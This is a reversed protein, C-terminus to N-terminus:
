WLGGGPDPTGDPVPALVGSPTKAPRECTVEDSDPRPPFGNGQAATARRGTIVIDYNRIEAAAVVDRATVEKVSWGRRLGSWVPPRGTILIVLDRSGHGRVLSGYGDLEVELVRRAM